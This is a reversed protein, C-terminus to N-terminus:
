YSNLPPPEEDYQSPEFADSFVAMSVSRDTPIAVTMAAPLSPFEFRTDAGAHMEDAILTPAV